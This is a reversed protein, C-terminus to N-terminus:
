SKNLSKLKRMLLLRIEDIEQLRFIFKSSLFYVVLFLVLGGVISVLKSPINSIFPFSLLVLLSSTIVAISNKLIFILFNNTLFM